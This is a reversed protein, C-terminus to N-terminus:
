GKDGNKELQKIQDNIYWVSKKLDQITDDKLGHRWLYKIASGINFNHHRVVDIAEISHGCNSCTALSSTYHTPHNIMDVVPKVSEVVKDGLDSM